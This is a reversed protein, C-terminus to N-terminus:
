KAKPMRREVIVVPVEFESAIEAVTKGQRLVIQDSPLIVNLAVEDALDEATGGFRNRYGPRHTKRLRCEFHSASSVRRERRRRDVTQYHGLAHAVAYRKWDTPLSSNVVIAFGSGLDNEFDPILEVDIGSKLERQLVAVKHAVALGAIDVPINKAFERNLQTVATHGNGPVDFRYDKNAAAVIDDVM